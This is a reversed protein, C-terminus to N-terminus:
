KKTKLLNLQIVTDMALTFVEDFEKQPIVEFGDSTADSLSANGIHTIKIAEYHSVRIVNNESIIYFYNREKKTCCPLELEVEIKETTTVTKVVPVKIHTM